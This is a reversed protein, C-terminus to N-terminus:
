NNHVPSTIAHHFHVGVVPMTGFASQLHQVQEAGAGRRLVRVRTGQNAACQAIVDWPELVPEWHKVAGNYSWVGLKFGLYAQAVQRSPGRM